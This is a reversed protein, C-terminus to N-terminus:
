NIELIDITASYRDNFPQTLPSVERNRGLFTRAIYSIDDTKLNYAVLVEGNVGLIRQMSNVKQIAEAEDLGDLTFSFSRKQRKVDFYETTDLAQEIETQNTFGFSPNLSMNIRPQFTNALFVRGFELYGAPNSTDLLEVRASKVVKPDFFHTLLTTYAEIDEQSPDGTWYNDYEWELDLVTDYVAPWVELFGSDYVLNTFNNEAYLRIRFTANVSFNHNAIAFCGVAQFGPLVMNFQTSAALLNTTRAKKALIRDKANNLPLLTTYSGGSLTAKDTVNPYCITVKNVDYTTIAM